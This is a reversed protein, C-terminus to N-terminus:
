LVSLQSFSVGIVFIYSLETTSRGQEFFYFLLWRDLFSGILAQGFFLLLAILTLQSVRPHYQWRTICLVLGIIWIFFIPIQIFYTAVMGPIVESM